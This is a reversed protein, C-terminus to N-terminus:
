RSMSRRRRSLAFFGVLALLGAALALGRRDLAPANPINAVIQCAGPLAHPVDFPCVVDGAVLATVGIGPSSEFNGNEDTGGSGLVVDDGGCHDFQSNLGASCILIGGPPLGPSGAGFVRTAGSLLPSTFHPVAPTQTSTATPTESPTTTPTSTPTSTETSTPTETVTPTPTETPTGTPTTTPTQTSTPQPTNTPTATVTPSNTPTRTPTFPPTNTPTPTPDIVHYYVTVRVADILNGAFPGIILGFNDSNISTAGLGAGWTDTPGGAADELPDYQTESCNTVVLAFNFSRGSGIATSGNATLSVQISGGGPSGVIGHKAEALIGDVIAGTPINFGLKTVVLNGVAMSPATSQACANDAVGLANAPNSINTSTSVVQVYNPGQSLAVAAQPALLLAVLLPVFGVLARSDGWAREIM